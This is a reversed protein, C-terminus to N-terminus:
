DIFSSELIRWVLEDFDYGAQRAAMPVLSHSTMGPVTNAEILWSKGQEDRMFDIRGWGKTGLVAFADLGQQRLSQEENEPLGCPCLYRTTDTKYKAEYDYFQNPTELKIIPLAENGLIAVTYEGGSVWREVIVETDYRFALEGAPQLQEPKDVKSMGISSGEHVPKVICPFGVQSEVKQFDTLTKAYVFPPTPIGLSTWVLKTRLKDMALASGQMRSGTYPCGMSQLVAQIVGDEGGRGHLVIFARDFEHQQLQNIVQAGIDIGFADIDSRKLGALVAQGSDLSVEREASTGGYLVAVRGFDSSNKIKRNQSM